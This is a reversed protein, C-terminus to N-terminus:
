IHLSGSTNRAMSVTSRLSWLPSGRFVCGGYWVAGILVAQALCSLQSTLSSQTTFQINNGYLTKQEQLFMISWYVAKSNEYKWGESYCILRDKSHTGNCHKIRLIVKQTVSKLKNKFLIWNIKTQSQPLTELLKQIAGSVSRGNARMKLASIIQSTRPGLITM